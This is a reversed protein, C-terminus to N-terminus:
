KLPYVVDGGHYVQLISQACTIGAQYNTEYSLAAAHPALVVNDLRFLPNDATVPESEYVDLAAGALKGTTLAEYLATEDVLAGRATNVLCATPKMLALTDGNILHRTQPTAPLHLSVVDSERLLTELSVPTMGAATVADASVYPDYVLLTVDFGQLLRALRRGIRGFGVIGVTKGCLNHMPFRDWRGARVATDFRPLNKLLSLMLGLAFEAVSDHNAIVGVRIGQRVMADLDFNDTGVGFRVIVKLEKAEALLQADYQETGAVVGFAGRLMAAQEERSLKKGSENCRLEFGADTLMRRAEDCIMTAQHRFPLAVIPKM